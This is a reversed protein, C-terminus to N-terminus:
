QLLFQFLLNVAAACLGSIAATMTCLGKRSWKDSFFIEKQFVSVCVCVVPWKSPFTAYESLNHLGVDSPQIFFAKV